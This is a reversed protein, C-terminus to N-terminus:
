IQVVQMDDQMNRKKALDSLDEMQMQHLYKRMQAAEQEKREQDLLCDEENQKIQELIM